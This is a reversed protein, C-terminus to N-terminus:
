SRKVILKLDRAYFVELHLTVFSEAFHVSATFHFQYLTRGHM